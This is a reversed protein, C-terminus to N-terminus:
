PVFLDGANAYASRLRTLAIYDVAERLDADM